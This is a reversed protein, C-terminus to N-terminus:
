SVCKLCFNLLMLHFGAGDMFSVQVGPVIAATTMEAMRNQTANIAEM